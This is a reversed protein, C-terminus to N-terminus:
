LGTFGRYGRAMLRIDIWRLTYLCIVWWGGVRCIYNAVEKKSLYFDTLLTQMNRPGHVDLLMQEEVMSKRTKPTNTAIDFHSLRPVAHLLIWKFSKFIWSFVNPPQTRYASSIKASTTSSAPGTQNTMSRSATVVTTTSTTTGPKVTTVTTVGLINPAPSTDIPITTTTGTPKDTPALIVTPITTRKEASKRSIKSMEERLREGRLAEHHQSGVPFMRRLLDVFPKLPNRLHPLVAFSKKPPATPTSSTSSSSISAPQSLTTTAAVRTYNGTDESKTINGAEHILPFSNTVTSISSVVELVKVTVTSERWLTVTRDYSTRSRWTRGHPYSYVNTDAAGTIGAALYGPEAVPDNANAINEDASVLCNLFVLWLLSEIVALFRM